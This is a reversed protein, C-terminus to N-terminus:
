AKSDLTGEIKYPRLFAWKKGGGQVAKKQCVIISSSQKRFHRARHSFCKTSYSSIM